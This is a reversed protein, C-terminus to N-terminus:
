AGADASANDPNGAGGCSAEPLRRPCVRAVAMRDGSALSPRMFSVRDEELQHLSVPLGVNSLQVLLLDIEDRLPSRREDADLHAGIDTGILYKFPLGRQKRGNSIRERLNENSARSM